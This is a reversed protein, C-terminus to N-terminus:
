RAAQSPSPVAAQSPSAVALSERPVYGKINGNADLVPVQAPLASLDPQGNVIPFPPYNPPAEPTQSPNAFAVLAGGGALVAGLVAAIIWRKM